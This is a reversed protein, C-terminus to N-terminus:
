DSLQASHRIRLIFVTESTIRYRLVYPPITMLERNEGGVPRGRHPFDCLSEGAEVLRSAFRRAAAPDFQQIYARILELNELAEVTWIIQAM